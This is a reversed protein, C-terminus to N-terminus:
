WCRDLCFNARRWSLAPPADCSRRRFTLALAAGWSTGVKSLVPRASWGDGGQIISVLRELEEQSPHRQDPAGTQGGGPLRQGGLWSTRVEFLALSRCLEEQGPCCQRGMLWEFNALHEPEVKKLDVCSGMDINNRRGLRGEEPRHVPKAGSSTRGWFSAKCAGAQGSDLAIDINIWIGGWPHSPRFGRVAKQLLTATRMLSSTSLKWLLLIQNSGKRHRTRCRETCNCFPCWGQGPFYWPRGGVVVLRFLPGM